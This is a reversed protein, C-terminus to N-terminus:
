RVVGAAFQSLAGFLGGDTAEAGHPAVRDFKILGGRSTWEDNGDFEFEKRAWVTWKVGGGGNDTFAFRGGGVLGRRDGLFLAVV